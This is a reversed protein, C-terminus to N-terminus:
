TSTALLLARWIICCEDIAVSKPTRSHRPIEQNSEADPKNSCLWLATHVAQAAQVKPFALSLTHQFSSPRSFTQSQALKGTLGQCGKDM